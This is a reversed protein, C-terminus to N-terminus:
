FLINPCFFYKFFDNFLILGFQTLDFLIIDDNLILVSPLVYLKEFDFM